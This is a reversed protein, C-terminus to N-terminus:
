FVGWDTESIGTFKFSVDESDAGDNGKKYTYNEIRCGTLLWTRYKSSGSPPYHRNQLHLQFEKSRNTDATALEFADPYLHVLGLKGKYEVAGSSIEGPDEDGFQYIFESKFEKSFEVNMAVGILVLLKADDFWVGASSSHTQGPNTYVLVLKMQVATAPVTGYCYTLDFSAASTTKKSYTLSSSVLVNASDWFMINPYAECSTWTGATYAYVEAYVADGAMCPIKSNASTAPGANSWTGNTSTGYIQLSKAGSRKQATAHATTATGTAGALYDGATNATWDDPSGSEMNWNYNRIIDYYLKGNMPGFPNTITSEHPM